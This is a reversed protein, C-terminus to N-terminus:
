NFLRATTSETFETLAAFDMYRGSIVELEDHLRKAERLEALALALTRARLEGREDPPATERRGAAFAIGAEPLLVAELKEPDLARPCLVTRLGRAEAERRAAELAGSGGPVEVIQKCLETITEDLRLIGRCSLASIWCRTPLSYAGASPTRDALRARLERETRAQEEPDEKQEAARELEMAARLLRYAAAYRARYAAGLAAAAERDRRAFPTRCFRGLNAYDGDVGHAAPERVHPATGDVWALGLAPIWLGDLSDPDGSCLVSLTDLGRRRAAERIAKMYSSKGTGPGGKVIHLFSGEPPFGEYASVFGLGTNAALFISTDM